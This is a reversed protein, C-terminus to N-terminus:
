LRREPLRELPTATVAAGIGVGRYRPM